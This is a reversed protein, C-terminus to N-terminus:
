HLIPKLADLRSHIRKHFQKDFVLMEWIYNQWKEKPLKDTLCRFAIQTLRITLETVLLLEDGNRIDGITLRGNSTEFNGMLTNSSHTSESYPKYIAQYLDFKNLYIALEKLNVCKPNFLSYWVVDRNKKSIYEQEISIGDEPQKEKFIDHNIARNLDDIQDSSLSTEPVEPSAFSNNEYHEKLQKYGRHAPHHRELNNRKAQNVCYVYAHARLYTKDKLLYEFQLVTEFLVRVLIRCPEVTAHRMLISVSDTLEIIRRLFGLTITGEVFTQETRETEWVILHTGISVLRALAEHSLEADKLLKEDAIKEPLLEPVPIQMNVM